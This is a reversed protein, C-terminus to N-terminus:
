FGTWRTDDARGSVEPLAEGSVTLKFLDSGAAAKGGKDDPGILKTEPSTLRGTLVIFNPDDKVGEFIFATASGFIRAIEREVFYAVKRYGAWTFYVGDTARLRRRKGTIDPGHPTYEGEESQFAAWIDVFIGGAPEVQEKFLDNLYSFNASTLYEEAPALGVWILPLQENRVAAVLSATRFRYEKKWEEGQFQLEEAYNALQGDIVGQGVVKINRNDRAGLSVVVLGVDESKLVATVDEPWDPKKDAVLGTRPYVLKKVKISPTEAYVAKLGDALGMALNDGIVLLVKADKSKEKEVIKPTNVAAVGASRKKRTTSRRRKKRTPNAQEIRKNGGGFLWGFFSKNGKKPAGTSNTRVQAAVEVPIVSVSVFCLSILAVFAFSLFSRQMIALRWCSGVVLM